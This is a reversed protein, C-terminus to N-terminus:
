TASGEGPPRKFKLAVTIRPDLCLKSPVGARHPLLGDFIVMRGPRPQIAVSLDPDDGYFHLEGSWDSEWRSNAFYVV